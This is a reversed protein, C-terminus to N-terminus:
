FFTRLGINWRYNANVEAGSTRELDVYGYANKCLRFNGGVGYEVWTGGIDSHMTNLATGNTAVADMEGQFDHAVSFKAYINGKNEPFKFGARVGARGILTDFDDQKVTVGNAATFTDGAVRGYSLEVQPEVFALDNLDFRWGFEASLSYANNDFSGDFGNLSFDTDLRVYKAIVDLFMGNEAMWTGYIGLGYANNDADGNNYEASGNTYNFAAGVKFGPAVEIDSGVQISNSKQKVNQDGYQLESGYVRAWAGITGESDRSQYYFDTNYDSISSDIWSHYVQWLGKEMDQDSYSDEILREYVEGIDWYDPVTYRCAGVNDFSGKPINCEEILEEAVKEIPECHFVDAHEYIRHIHKRGLYDAVKKRPQKTKRGIYEILSCIYFLDNNNKTGM